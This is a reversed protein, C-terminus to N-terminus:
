HNVQGCVTVRELLLKITVRFITLNLSNQRLNLSNRASM